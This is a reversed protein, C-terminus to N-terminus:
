FHMAQEFESRDHDRLVDFDVADQDSFSKLISVRGATEIMQQVRRPMRNLLRFAGVYWPTLHRRLKTLEAKPLPHFLPAATAGVDRGAASFRGFMKRVDNRLVKMQVDNLPATKILVIRVM